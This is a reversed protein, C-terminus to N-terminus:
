NKYIKPQILKQKMSKLSNLDIKKRFQQFHPHLAFTLTFFISIKFNIEANIGDSFVETVLM